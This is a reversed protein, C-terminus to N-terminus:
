LMEKILEDRTKPSLHRLPIDFPTFGGYKGERSLKYAARGFALMVSGTFEPNSDLNLSFEMTHNNKGGGTTGSHIVLGGHPMKCHERSLDEATIFHVETDYEAFYDPMNKIEEAIKGIDAGPKPVVYCLRTHKQRATLMPNEGARIAEIASDVPITYQIGGAVGEISRIAESHGQSVGRGWFTHPNRGPLVSGSILRMISFLGPDWGASIIATKKGSRAAGDVKGLYDHIANHTDFSDVINFQGALKPGQLPLDSKSGGCLILVDINDKYVAIDNLSVREIGGPVDALLQPDRRTFVAVPVCDESAKIAAIVGRGINGYGVIGIKIM